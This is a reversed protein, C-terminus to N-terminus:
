LLHAESIGQFLQFLVFAKIAGILDAWCYNVCSFLFCSSMMNFCYPCFTSCSSSLHQPKLNMSTEQEVKLQASVQTEIFGGSNSQLKSTVKGM